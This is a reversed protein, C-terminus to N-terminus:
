FGSEATAVEGSHRRLAMWGEARVGAGASVRKAEDTILCLGLM